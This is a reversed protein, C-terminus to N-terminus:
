GILIECHYESLRADDEFLLVADETFYPQSGGIGVSSIESQLEEFPMRLRQGDSPHIITSDAGTDVLFEIDGQINLRPLILWGQVYPRGQQDFRGRIVATLPDHKESEFRPVPHCGRRHSGRPRGVDQPSRGPSEALVFDGTHLAVWHDPHNRILRGKQSEMRDVRARFARLKELIDADSVPAHGAGIDRFKRTM